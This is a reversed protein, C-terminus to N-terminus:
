EAGDLLLTFILHNNLNKKLCCCCIRMMMYCRIKWHHNKSRLNKRKLNRKPSKMLYYSKM